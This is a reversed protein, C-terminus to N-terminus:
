LNVQRLASAVDKIERKILASSFDWFSASAM